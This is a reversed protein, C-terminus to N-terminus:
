VVPPLVHGATGVKALNVNTYAMDTSVERGLWDPLMVSEYENALEVEAIVLGALPGEFVDVELTHKDAPFLYRTKYLVGGTSHEKLMEIADDVPIEYEWEECSLGTRPGKLTLFAKKGARRVRVLLGGEAVYGQAIPTGTLGRLASLDSVLFKREIEKAM